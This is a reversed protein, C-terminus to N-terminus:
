RSLTMNGDDWINVRDWVINLESEILKIIPLYTIPFIDGLIIGVLCDSIDIYEFKNDMDLVIFRYEAEDRYDQHKKFFLFKYNINLHEKIIDHNPNTYHITKAQSKYMREFRIDKHPYYNVIGNKKFDSKFQKRVAKQLSKKSFALCLGRHNDAYQDWMRSRLYGPYNTKNCCFCAMRLNQQIINNIKEPCSILKKDFKNWTSFLGTLAFIRKKYEHPDASDIFRTFRLQKNKLIYELARELKTYHFILDKNNFFKEYRM